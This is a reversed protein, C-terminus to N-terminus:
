QKKLLFSNITEVITEKPYAGLLYQPRGEKPVFLIMPISSVGFHAALEKEKDVDIKYILIDTKYETALEKMIPAIRRCPGCWDAYFDIICPKEGEYVWESTNKEYNYVKELFDAKNIVIVDGKAEDSEQQARVGNATFLVVLMVVFYRLSKM